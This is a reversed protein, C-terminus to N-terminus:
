TFLRPGLITVFDPVLINLSITAFYIYQTGSAPFYFYIYQYGSKTMKLSFPLVWRGGRRCSKRVAQKMVPYLKLSNPFKKIILQAARYAINTENLPVLLNNCYLNINQTGNFNIKIYDSLEISQLVMILEHYNDFREGLIELYLNIKAPALLNCTKM